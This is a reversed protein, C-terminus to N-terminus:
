FTYTPPTIGKLRLYVECQARHHATHVFINRLMERGNINPSPRGEFDVKFQTKELRDDTLKPLVAIAFDFSQDLWEIAVQKTIDKPPAPRPSDVGGIQSFREFLAASIHIMQEGFSMEEPSAKFGYDAAPMKDAVAITFQTSIKWDAVFDDTSLFTAAQGGLPILGLLVLLAGRPM